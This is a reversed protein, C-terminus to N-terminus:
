NYGPNQVLLPNINIESQPIPFLRKQPNNDTKPGWSDEYKGFRILDNRRWWENTLERAREDLLENLDVVTLPSAKARTRIMNVLSLATHGMTPSAGRLIAEAKMLLIDAYRFVPHDNNQYSDLSIKDCHFKNCRYGLMLGKLDNGTEFKSVDRFIIEPTLDLQVQIVKNPEPGSYNVDYGKNTTEIMIPTGDDYYQPGKLWIKDRVDNPDNFKAYYEPLTRASGSPTYPLDFKLQLHRELWWRGYRQMKIQNRDFPIAWIFDKIHPGNDLGFMGLWDADLAFTGNTNAETIVKDCMTVVDNWRSTGTFIQANLYLKALMTYAMWKTPRGYTSQDVNENLDPVAALLEDEIFEFVEARPVRAGAPQGFNVALPVDGFLDIMLYFAWARVCKIEAIAIKKQDSDQATNLIDLVKNCTSIITFGYAWSYQVVRNDKDHTHMHPQMWRAGDYWRGGDATIIMEDTTLSQALWMYDFRSAALSSYAASAVAVFDRETKPFIDPTLESVVPVELDTCGFSFLLTFAISHVFSKTINKKM